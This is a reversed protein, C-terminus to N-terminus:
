LRETMMSIINGHEDFDRMVALRAHERAVPNGGEDLFLVRATDAPAVESSATTAVPARRM